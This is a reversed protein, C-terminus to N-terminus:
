MKWLLKSSLVKAAFIVGQDNISAIDFGKNNLTLNYKEKMWAVLIKDQEKGVFLPTPDVRAKPFGKITAILDVDFFFRPIWGCVGGM